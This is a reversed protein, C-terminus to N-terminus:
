KEIERIEDPTLIKITKFGDPISELDDSTVEVAMRAYGEDTIRYHGREVKEVMKGAELTNLRRSISSRSRDINKGIISPTMILQSRGLLALIERDLDTIWDPPDLSEFNYSTIDIKYGYDEFLKDYIDPSSPEEMGSALYGPM